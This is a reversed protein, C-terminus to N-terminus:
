SVPHERAHYAEVGPPAPPESGTETCEVPRHVLSEEVLIAGAERRGAEDSPRLVGVGAAQKRAVPGPTNRLVCHRPPAVPSLRTFRPPEQFLSALFQRAAFRM